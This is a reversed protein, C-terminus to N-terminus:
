NLLNILAQGVKFRVTNRAPFDTAIGRVADYGRRAPIRCRRMVGFGKIVVRTGGEYFHRGILDTIGDIVALAEQRSTIHNDKRAVMLDALHTKTLSKKGGLIM